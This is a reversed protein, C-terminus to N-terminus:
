EYLLDGLDFADIQRQLGEFTDTGSVRSIRPATPRRRFIVYQLMGRGLFQLGLRSGLRDKWVARLNGNDILVLNGKRFRPMLEIFRWFDVESESNLHYGEGKAYTGLENIRLAYAQNRTRMPGNLNFAISTM